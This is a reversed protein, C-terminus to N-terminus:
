PQYGHHTQYYAELSKVATAFVRLSTEFFVDSKRGTEIRIMISPQGKTTGKPIGMLTVTKNTVHIVKAPDFLTGSSTETGDMILHIAVV